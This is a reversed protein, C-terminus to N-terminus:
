IRIKVSETRGGHVPTASVNAKRNPTEAPESKPGLTKNVVQTECDGDKCKTTRKVFHGNQLITETSISQTGNQRDIPFSINWGDELDDFDAPFGQGQTFNRDFVDRFIDSGFNEQARRMEAGFRRMEESARPMVAIDPKSRESEGIPASKPLQGTEVHEECKGNKCTKTKKVIHGKADTSIETEDISSSSMFGSPTGSGNKTAAPLHPFEHGLELRLPFSLTWSMPGHHAFDLLWRGSLPDTASLLEAETAFHSRIVGEAGPEKVRDGLERNLWGAVRAAEGRLRATELDIAAASTSRLRGTEAEGVGVAQRSLLKASVVSLVGVAFLRYSRLPFRFM